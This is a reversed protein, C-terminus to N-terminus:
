PKRILNIGTDTITILKKRYLTGISKKFLKKSMELQRSIDAPDSKDNLNLSGHNTKLTEMIRKLNPEINDYGPNELALDIKNEERINKIYGKIRDGTHINKFIENGYILGKHKGNIVALRGLDTTKWILLNVEDNVEYDITSNDLYKDIKTTGVLRKTTNDLYLYVIYHRGATLKQGQNRFPVFLDKDLGWDFFAGTDNLELLKLYAFENVKVYPEQTTAVLRDESDMYIFVNLLSDPTIGAPIYKGPLLVTDGEENKLYLGSRTTSDSKLVHYKGPEIM